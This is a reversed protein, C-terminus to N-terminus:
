MILILMSKLWDSNCNKLLTSTTSSTESKPKSSNKSEINNSNYLVTADNKKDKGKNKSM